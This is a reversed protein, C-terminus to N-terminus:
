AMVKLGTRWLWFAFGVWIGFVMFARVTGLVGDWFSTEVAMGHANSGDLSVSFTADRTMPHASETSLLEFVDGILGLPGWETVQQFADAADQLCGESPVFLSEFFNQQGEETPDNLGVGGGGSGSGGGSVAGWDPIRWEVDYTQIDTNSTSIRVITRFKGSRYSVDTQSSIGALVVGLTYPTSPAYSSGTLETGAARSTPLQVFRGDVLIHTQITRIAWYTTPFTWPAGSGSNIDVRLLIEGGGTTNPATVIKGQVTRGSGGNLDFPYEIEGQAAGFVALAFLVISGVLRCVMPSLKALTLDM